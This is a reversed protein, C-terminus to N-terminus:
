VRTEEDSPQGILQLAEEYARILRSRLPRSHEYIAMQKKLYIRRGEETEIRIPELGFERLDYPSAQMDVTRAHVAHFFTDALLEGPIWPYLKFAWKYLDMNTHICGPQEMEPFNDRSPQHKNMPKAEPTFFRFADFHTCVIPRSEVFANIEDDPLRMPIQEHRVEGARYVMAWEHMGFCGFLPRRKTSNHLVELIWRFSRARKVPFEDRDLWAVGEHLTLERFGPLQNSDNCELGVGIGPSWRYLHTPRFTYYEFLFDLVPDRARRSRKELYPEILSKLRQQHSEQMGTWIVAPLIKRLQTQHPDNELQM